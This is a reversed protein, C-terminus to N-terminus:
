EQHSTIPKRQLGFADLPLVDVVHVIHRTHLENLLLQTNNRHEVLLGIERLASVGGKQLLEVPFVATAVM